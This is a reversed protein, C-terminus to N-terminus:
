KVYELIRNPYVQMWEAHTYHGGEPRQTWKAEANPTELHGLNVYQESLFPANHALLALRLLLSDSLSPRRKRYDDIRQLLIQGAYRFSAVSDFAKRLDNEVFPPGLQRWQVPGCDVGPKGGSPTYWNTAALIGAGESISFGLLVGVPLRPLESHVATEATRLLAAQTAPGVIGDSVLKHSSQFSQVANETVPGFAGDPTVRLGKQLAYVRWGTEGKKISSFLDSWSEYKPPQSPLSM